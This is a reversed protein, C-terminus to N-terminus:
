TSRTSAPMMSGALTTRVASWSAADIAASIRVVSAETASAGFFSDWPWAMGGPPM